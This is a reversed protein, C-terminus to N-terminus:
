QLKEFASRNDDPHSTQVQCYMSVKWHFLILIIIRGNCLIFLISIHIM